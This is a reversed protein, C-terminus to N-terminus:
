LQNGNGTAMGHSTPLGISDGPPTSAEPLGLSFNLGHQAQGSVLFCRSSHYAIERDSRDM